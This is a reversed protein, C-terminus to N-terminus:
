NANDMGTVHVAYGHCGANRWDYDEGLGQDPSGGLAIGKPSRIDDDSNETGWDYGPPVLYFPTYTYDFGQELMCDAIIEQQQLWADHSAVESAPWDAPPRPITAIDTSADYRPPEDVAAPAAPAAAPESLATVDPAVRDDSDAASASDVPEGLGAAAISATGSAILTVATALASVVAIGAITLAVMSGRRHRTSEDDRVDSLLEDLESM